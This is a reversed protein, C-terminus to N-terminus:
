GLISRNTAKIGRSLLCPSIDIEKLLLDKAQTFVESDLYIDILKNLVKYRQVVKDGAFNYRTSNNNYIVIAGAAEIYKNINNNTLYETRVATNNTERM